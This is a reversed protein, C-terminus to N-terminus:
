SFASYLMESIYETYFIKIAIRSFIEVSIQMNLPGNSYPDYPMLVTAMDIEEGSQSNKSTMFQTEKDRSDPGTGPSCDYCFLYENFSYAFM